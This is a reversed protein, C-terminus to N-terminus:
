GERTLILEDSHEAWLDFIQRTNSGSGAHMGRLYCASRAKNGDVEIRFNGLLHQTPGCSGPYKRTMELFERKGSVIENGACDSQVDDTV